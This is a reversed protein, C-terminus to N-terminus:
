TDKQHIDVFFWINWHRSKRVPPSIKLNGLWIVLAWHEWFTETYQQFFLFATERWSCQHCLIIKMNQFKVHLSKKHKVNIAQSLWVVSLRVGSNKSLTSHLWFWISVIEEMQGSSGGKSTLSTFQHWLIKNGGDSFYKANTSEKSFNDSLLKTTFTAGM